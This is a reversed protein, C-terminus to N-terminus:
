VSLYKAILENVIKPDAKGGLKKMTQGVFFALLRQNGNKYALAEKENEALVARVAEEIVGSESVMGLSNEKVYLEPDIDERFVMALLKKGTGRNVANNAVMEIIKAFKKCDIKIDDDGISESKAIGLLDVIIWNVTEKPNNLFAITKDFIDSLNKSGTIIKCEDESLGLDHTMRLYKESAPEPLGARVSEIWEDNIVIPMLEPNPFYRYDTANEKERMAFTESLSDDWRRTEQVLTENGNELADIHRQSEFAIAAGIAKLSNMNKIETRTGLTNSGKERVSINVDCRM